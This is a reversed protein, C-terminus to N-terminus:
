HCIKLCSKDLASKFLALTWRSIYLPLPGTNATLAERRLTFVKQFAGKITQGLFQNESCFNGFQLLLGM